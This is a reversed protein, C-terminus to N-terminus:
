IMQWQLALIFINSLISMQNIINLYLEYSCTMGFKRKSLQKLAIQWTGKCDLWMLHWFSVQWIKFICKQGYIINEFIKRFKAFLLVIYDANDYIHYYDHKWKWLSNSLMIKISQKLYENSYHATCDFRDAWSHSCYERSDAHRLSTNNLFCLVMYKICRCSTKIVARLDWIKYIIIIILLFGFLTELVEFFFRM